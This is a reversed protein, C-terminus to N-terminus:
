DAGESFALNTEPQPKQKLESQLALMRAQLSHSARFYRNRNFNGMKENLSAAKAANALLSAWHELRNGEILRYIINLKL